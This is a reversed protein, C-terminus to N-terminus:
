QETLQTIGRNSEQGTLARRSHELERLREDFDVRAPPAIGVEARLSHRLTRTASGVELYLYTELVAIRETAGPEVDLAARYAADICRSVESTVSLARDSLVMQAQAFSKRFEEWAADLKAQDAQGEARDALYRRAAARFYHASTSLEAYLSRKEDLADKGAAERREEARLRSQFEADLRRTRLAFFQAAIAGGLTGGATIAAVAVNTLDMGM